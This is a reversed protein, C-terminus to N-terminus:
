STGNRLVVTVNWSGDKMETYTRLVYLGVPLKAEDEPYPAQTMVKLRNGTMMTKATMGHIIESGFAPIVVEEHLKLVEDIDTPDQNTNTPYTAKEQYMARYSYLRNAIEYSVQAQQWEPPANEMESEKMRCVVRHLTPTGLIVPVKHSFHSTDEIVLAVQEEDYSPVGEIQICFTVYGIM